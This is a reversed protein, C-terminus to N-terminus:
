GVSEKAVRKQRTRKPKLKAVEEELEMVRLRSMVAEQELAKLQTVAEVVKKIDAYALAYYARAASAQLGNNAKSAMNFLLQLAQESNM